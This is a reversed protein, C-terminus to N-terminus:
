IDKVQKSCVMPSGDAAMLQIPQCDTLAVHLKAALQESVFTGVSRSDVLMLVELKGIRGYLKLTCRRVPTSSHVSHGLALVTEEELEEQDVEESGETVELAGLIEEIVHL